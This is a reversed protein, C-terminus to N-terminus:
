IPPPAPAVSCTSCRILGNENCTKCVRFGAKESYYKRSGDCDACLLFRHGGCVECTGPKAPPLGEVYQKLEGAEHMQRIEEAGGIYRGGIFVRPLTLKRKERVGMIARLEDMFRGDMSLDREDISVRFSRLIAQVDKCDLFTRRVVRLSTLYVVIRNESGPLSISPEPKDAGHKQGQVPLCHPKPDPGPESGPGPKPQSDPGSFVRLVSNARRVRHFINTSKKTQTPTPSDSSLVPEDACLTQIDKFSSCSFNASTTRHIGTKSKTRSLWM